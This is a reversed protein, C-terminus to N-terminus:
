VHTAINKNSICFNQPCFSPLYSHDTRIEGHPRKIHYEFIALKKIKKKQGHWASHPIKTKWDLICSMDGANYTCPRLQQVALSIGKVYYNQCYLYINRNREHCRSHKRISPSTSTGQISLFVSCFYIWIGKFPFIICLKLFFLSSSLFPSPKSEKPFPDLSVSLFIYGISIKTNLHHSNCLEFVKRLRRYM